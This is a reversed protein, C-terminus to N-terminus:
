GDILVKPVSVLYEREASFLNSLVLTRVVNLKETNRQQKRPVYAASEVFKSAIAALETTSYM